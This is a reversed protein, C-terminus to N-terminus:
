ITRSFNFEKAKYRHVKVAYIANMYAGAEFGHVVKIIFWQGYLKSNYDTPDAKNLKDIAIFKGPQRLTLGFTTFCICANQFLGTYLLQSIGNKQRIIEGLGNPDLDGNLSFTPFMNTNQKQQHLTPLFLDETNGSGRYLKKIYSEAIADRMDKVTNGEFTAQFARRGIDVSYVPTNCLIQSNMEPSIDVYSYSFIQGYKATKLDRDSAQSLPAMWIKGTATNENTHSTTFFHEIQNKGPADRSTGVDEFFKSVPTLAIDSIYTGTGSRKTHLISIDRVNKRGVVQSSVHQGYVYNIDDEASWQAPSTYFIKSDGPEFDSKDIPSLTLDGGHTPNELAKTFLEYLITGTSLTKQPFYSNALGNESEGEPSFSTSYELNTTKLIQARLDRFSLKLCKMYESAPGQIQPVDNVDEVNYISFLYSLMWNPDNNAIAVDPGGDRTPKLKPIVSFRLVDFGDARFQYTKLVDDSENRGVLPTISRQAYTAEQAAPADDPLYLFTISGETVWNTLMEEITLNIVAAPNIRHRSAESTSGLNNSNDLYLDVAYEVDNYKQLFLNTLSAYNSPGPNMQEPNYNSPNLSRLPNTFGQFIGGFLNGVNFTSM